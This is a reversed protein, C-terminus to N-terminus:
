AFAAECLTISHREAMLEDKTWQCHPPRPLPELGVGARVDDCRDMVGDAIERFRLHAVERDWSQQKEVIGRPLPRVGEPRRRRAPGEPAERRMTGGTMRAVKTASTVAGEREDETDTM